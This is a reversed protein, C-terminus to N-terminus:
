LSTGSVSTRQFSNSIRADLGREGVRGGFSGSSPRARRRTGRVFDDASCGSPVLPWIWDLQIYKHFEMPKKHFKSPGVANYCVPPDM